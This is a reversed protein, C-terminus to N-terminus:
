PVPLGLQKSQKMIKCIQHESISFESAPVVGRQDRINQNTSFLATDQKIQCKFIRLVNANSALGVIIRLCTFSSREFMKGTIELSTGITTKEMFGIGLFSLPFIRSKGLIQAKM